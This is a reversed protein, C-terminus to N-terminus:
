EFYALGEEDSWTVAGVDTGWIKVKAITNM